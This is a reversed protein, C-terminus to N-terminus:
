MWVRAPAGDRDDDLDAMSDTADNWLERTNVDPLICPPTRPPLERRPTDPTERSASWLGVGVKWPWTNANEQAADIM